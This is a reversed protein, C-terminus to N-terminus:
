SLGAAEGQILTNWRITRSIAEALSITLPLDFDKRAQSVDPVLRSVQSANSAGVSFVVDPTTEFHSAVAHALKSLAIPEPSGVNYRSGSAASCLIRLFWFAMDAPYMYSRITRGDGLVRITHGAMADHIFNNIAWPSALSQYPGIFAFPRVTTVPLRMQSRFSACLTEAYRKAEAYAAAVACIDPSGPFSESIGALDLPQPGYVAASSINLFMRFDSCRDAARLLAETGNAIVAMTDIPSTAHARGDPSAAAHILWNTERPIEFTNRVDSKIVTVDSRNALHARGRRFDDAGRAVLIIKTKFGHEDNLCALMETLWSGVFGTGGAITITSNALSTLSKARNQLLEACDQRVLAAARSKM